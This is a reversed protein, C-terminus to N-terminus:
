VGWGTFSAEGGLPAKSIWGAWEDAISKTWNLKPTYAHIIWDDADAEVPSELRVKHGGHAELWSVLQRARDETAAAFHCMISLPENARPHRELTEWITAKLDLLLDQGGDAHRDPDPEISDPQQGALRQTEAFLRRISPTVELNLSLPPNTRTVALLQQAADELAVGGRQYAAIIRLFAEEAPSM